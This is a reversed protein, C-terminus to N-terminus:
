SLRCVRTTHLHAQLEKIIGKRGIQADNHTVGVFYACACSPWPKSDVFLASFKIAHPLCITIHPGIDGPWLNLIEHPPLYEVVVNEDYAGSDQSLNAANGDTGHASCLKCIYITHTFFVEQVDLM